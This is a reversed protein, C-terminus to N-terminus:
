GQSLILIHLMNLHINLDHNQLYFSEHYSNSLIRVRAKLLQYEEQSLKNKDGDKTKQSSDLLSVSLLSLVLIFCNGFFFDILPKTQM